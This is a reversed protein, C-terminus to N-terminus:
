WEDLEDFWNECDMRKILVDPHYMKMMKPERVKNWLWFMFQKKYKLAYIMECCHNLRRIIKSKENFSLHNPLIYSIPNIYCYLEKLNPMVPLTVIQNNECYLITLDPM